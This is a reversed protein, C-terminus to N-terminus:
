SQFPFQFTKPTHCLKASPPLRITIRLSNPPQSIYLDGLNVAAANRRARLDSSRIPWDIGPVSCAPAKGTSRDWTKVEQVRLLKNVTSILDFVSTLSIEKVCCIYQRVKGDTEKVKGTRDCLGRWM